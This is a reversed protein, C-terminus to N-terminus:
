TRWYADALYPGMLTVGVNLLPNVGDEGTLRKYLWLWLYSILTRGGLVGVMFLPDLTYPRLATNLLANLKLSLVVCTLTADWRTSLIVPPM